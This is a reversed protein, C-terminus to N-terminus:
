VSSARILAKGKANETNAMFSQGYVGEDSLEDDLDGAALARRVKQKTLEVPKDGYGRLRPM